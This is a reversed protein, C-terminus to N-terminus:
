YVKFCYMHKAEYDSVIYGPRNEELFYLHQDTDAISILFNAKTCRDEKTFVNTADSIGLAFVGAQKPVIGLQFQYQNNFEEFGYDRNHEPLLEDPLFKGTILKYGFVNAAPVVGPNLYDGGVFRDYSISMGLNEANSYDIIKGTNIDQLITPSTLQVWITDNIKISDLDNKIQINMQFSYKTEACNIAIGKKCNCNSYVSTLGVIFLIVVNWSKTVM